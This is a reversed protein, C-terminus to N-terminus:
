VYSERIRERLVDSSLGADKAALIIRINKVSTEVGVLYGAPVEAGFSVRASERVLQMWHNDACKEIAALSADTAEVAHVFRSYRGMSLSSWLTEEGGDYVEDFFGRSLEGGPLLSSDLFIKGTEGRKMRLIRLCMMINVLDIKTKVWSILAPNGSAEACALMDEYCAIDLIADIRQPDGTKAYDERAVPVAAAMADPFVQYKDTLIAETLVATPVTGFDFLLDKPDIQRIYCKIVAKINNCDYPYRFWDYLKPEPVSAGVERYAERLLSLLMEERKQGRAEGSAPTHEEQEATAVGYESLKNMVDESSKLDTLVDIREKGVLRNEMARIRASAYMYETPQLKKM